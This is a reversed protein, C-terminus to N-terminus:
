AGWLDARRVTATSVDELVPRQRRSALSSAQPFVFALAALVGLLGLGVWGYRWRGTRRQMSPDGWARSTVVFSTRMRVSGIPVVATGGRAREPSPLGWWM